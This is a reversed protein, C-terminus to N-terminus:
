RVRKADLHISGDRVEVAAVQYGDRQLELRIERSIQDSTATGNQYQGIGVGVTPFQAYNGKEASLLHEIHQADSDGLRFDGQFFALDNEQLVIDTTNM